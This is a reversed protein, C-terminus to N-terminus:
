IGCMRAICAYLQLNSDIDRNTIMCTDGIFSIYKIKIKDDLEDYSKLFMFMRTIIDSTSYGANKLDILLLHNLQQLCLVGLALGQQEVLSPLLHCWM